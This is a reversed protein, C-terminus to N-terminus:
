CKKLWLGTGVGEAVKEGYKKQFNTEDVFVGRLPIKTTNRGSLFIIFAIVAAILTFGLIIFVSKYKRLVETM